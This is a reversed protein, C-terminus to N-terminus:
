FSVIKNSQYPVFDEDYFAEWDAVIEKYYNRQDNETGDDMAHINEFGHIDHELKETVMQRYFEKYDTKVVEHSVVNFLEECDYDGERGQTCNCIFDFPVLVLVDKTENPLQERLQELGCSADFDINKLRFDFYQLEKLRANGQTNIEM